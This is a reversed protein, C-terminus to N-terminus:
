QQVPLLMKTLMEAGSRSSQLSWDSPEVSIQQPVSSRTWAVKIVPKIKAPESADRM